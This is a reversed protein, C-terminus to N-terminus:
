AGWVVDKQGALSQKLLDIMPLLRQHFNVHAHAPDDDPTLPPNSATASM